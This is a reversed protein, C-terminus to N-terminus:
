RLYDLISVNLIRAGSALATQYAQQETSLKTIAQVTDVGEIQSKLSDTTANYAELRTKAFDLNRGQTGVLGRQLGLSDLARDLRDLLGSVQSPDESGLAAQLDDLLGFLNKTGATLGLTSHLGGSVDELTMEGGQLDNALSLRLAGTDTLGARVNVGGATLQDDIAKALASPEYNGAPVTVAVSRPTGDSSRTGDSVRFVLDAGLVVQGTGDVPLPKDGRVETERFARDGPLNVAAVQGNGLNIRLQNSDGVYPGGGSGFPAREDATGSFLYRGEQRTGAIQLLGGKLGGVEDALARFSASLAMSASNAGEVALSKAQVMRQYVQDLASDTSQNRALAEDINKLYQENRAVVEDLRVIRSAAAPDDSPKVVRVGSGVQRNLTDITGLRQQIDQLWGNQISQQTVRM